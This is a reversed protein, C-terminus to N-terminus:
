TTAYFTASCVSLNLLSLFRNQLLHATNHHGKPLLIQAVRLTPSSYAALITSFALLTGDETVNNCGSLSVELHALSKLNNTIGKALVSLCDDTVAATKEWNLKLKVLQTMKSLIQKVFVIYSQASLAKWRSLTFALSHLREPQLDSKVLRLFSNHDLQTELKDNYMHVKLDLSRLSPLHLNSLIDVTTSSPDALYLSLSELHPKNQLGPLVCDPVDHFSASLLGPFNSLLNAGKVKPPAKSSTMFLGLHKLATPDCHSLVGRADDRIWVKVARVKKCLPHQSFYGGDRGSVLHNSCIWRGALLDRYTSCTLCLGTPDRLFEDILDLIDFPLDTFPSTSSGHCHVTVTQCSTTLQNPPPVKGVNPSTPRITNTTTPLITTCTSGM